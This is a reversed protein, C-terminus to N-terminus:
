LLDSRQEVVCASSHMAMAGGASAGFYVSQTPQSAKQLVSRIVREM